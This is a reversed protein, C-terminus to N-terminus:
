KPSKYLNESNVSYFTILLIQFPIFCISPYHFNIIMFILLFLYKEKKKMSLPLLNYIIKSYTIFFITLGILGFERFISTYVWEHSIEKFNSLKGIFIEFINLNRLSLIQDILQGDRFLLVKFYDFSFKYFFLSSSFFLYSVLFFLFFLLIILNKNKFRGILIISFLFFYFGIYSQSIVLAIIGFIFILSFKKVFQLYISLLFAILVGNPQPYFLLGYPRYGLFGNNNKNTDINNIFSDNLYFIDSPKFNLFVVLIFEILTISAVFLLTYKILQHYNIKIKSKHLRLIKKFILIGPILM